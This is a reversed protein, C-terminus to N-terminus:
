LCPEDDEKQAPTKEDNTLSINGRIESIDVKEASIAETRGKLVQNINEQLFNIKTGYENVTKSGDSLFEQLFEQAVIPNFEVAELVSKEFESDDKKMFAKELKEKEAKKITEQMLMVQNNRNPNGESIIEKLLEQSTQLDIGALDVPSQNQSLSKLMESKLADKKIKELDDLKKQFEPTINNNGKFSELFKHASKINGSTWENAYQPFKENDCTMLQQFIAERCEKEVIKELEEGSEPLQQSAYETSHQNRMRLEEFSCVGGEQAGKINEETPEMGSAILYEITYERLAKNKDITKKGNEDLEIFKDLEYKEALELAYQENGQAIASCINEWRATAGKEKDNAYLIEVEAITKVANKEENTKAENYARIANFDVADRAKNGFYKSAKSLDPYENLANEFYNVQKQSNKESPEGLNGLIVKNVYANRIEEKSLPKEGRDEVPVIPKVVDVAIDSILAEIDDVGQVLVRNFLDNKANSNLEALLRNKKASDANDPIYNGVKDEILRYCVKLAKDIKEEIQSQTLEKSNVFGAIKQIAENDQNQANNSNETEQEKLERKNKESM